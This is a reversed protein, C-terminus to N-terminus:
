SKLWKGLGGLVFLAIVVIVVWGPWNAPLAPAAALVPDAIV